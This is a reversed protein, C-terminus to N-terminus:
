EFRGFSLFAGLAASASITLVLIWGDQLLLVSGMTPIIVILPGVLAAVIASVVKVAIRGVIERADLYRISM